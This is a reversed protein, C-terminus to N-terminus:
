VPVENPVLFRKYVVYGLMVLLALLVVTWKGFRTKPKNQPPLDDKARADAVMRDIELQSVRKELETEDEDPEMVKARVHLRLIFSNSELGNFILPQGNIDLWRVTLRQLSNIPEPYFVSIKYDSNEQFNKMCGSGVDLPIPAFARSPGAGSTLQAVYQNSGDTKTVYQLGGTFVHRPTRLEDIDLFIQDGTSTNVINASTLIYKNTYAPWTSGALTGQLPQGMPIGLIKSLEQTNVTLSFQGSSSFLFKGEFTLYTCTVLGTNTLATAMDYVGYFGTNLSVTALGLTLVETGNTINYLTNPVRASVLDVREINKVPSSLFLVYSNGSPYLTPDRSNSSGFLIVEKAAM